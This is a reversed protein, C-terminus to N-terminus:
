GLRYVVLWMYGRCVEGVGGAEEEEEGNVGVGRQELFRIGGPGSFHRQLGLLKEKLGERSVEEGAVIAKVDPTFANNFRTSFLDIPGPGM